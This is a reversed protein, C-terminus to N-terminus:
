YSTDDAEDPQNDPNATSSCGSSDIRCCYYNIDYILRERNPKFIRIRLSGKPKYISDGVEVKSFLGKQDFCPLLMGMVHKGDPTKFGIYPIRRPDTLRKHVVESDFIGDGYDSYYLESRNKEKRSFM